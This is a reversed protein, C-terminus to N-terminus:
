RTEHNKLLAYLKEKVEFPRNPFYAFTVLFDGKHFKTCLFYIEEGESILPLYSTDGRAYLGLFKEGPEDFSRIHEYFAHIPHLWYIPHMDADDVDFDMYDLRTTLVWHSDEIAKPNVRDAKRAEVMAAQAEALGAVTFPVHVADGMRFILEQYKYCTSEASQIVLRQAVSSSSFM